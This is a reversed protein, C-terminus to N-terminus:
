LENLILSKATLIENPEPFGVVDLDYAPYITYKYKPCGKLFKNLLDKKLMTERHSVMEGFEDYMIKRVKHRNDISFQCIQYFPFQREIPKNYPDDKQVTLHFKTKTANYNSTM